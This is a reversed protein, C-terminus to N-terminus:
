SIYCLIEFWPLMARKQVFAALCCILYSEFVIVHPSFRSHFHKRKLWCWFYGNKIININTYHICHLCYCLHYFPWKYSWLTTSIATLLAIFTDLLYQLLLLGCIQRIVKKHWCFVVCKLMPQEQCSSKIKTVKKCCIRKVIHMNVMTATEESLHWAIQWGRLHTLNWVNVAIKVCVVQILIQLIRTWLFASIRALDM